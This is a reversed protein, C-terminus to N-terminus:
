PHACRYIFFVVFAVQSPKSPFPNPVVRVLLVLPNWSWPVLLLPLGLLLNSLHTTLFYTLIHLKMPLMHRVISAFVFTDGYLHSLTIVISVNTIGPSSKAFRFMVYWWLLYWSSFIDYTNNHKKPSVYIIICDDNDDDDLCNWSHVRLLRKKNKFCLNIFDRERERLTTMMMMM